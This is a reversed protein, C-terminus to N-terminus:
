QMIVSAIELHTQDSCYKDVLVYLSKKRRTHNQTLVVRRDRVDKEVEPEIAGTLHLWRARKRDEFIVMVCKPLLCGRTTDVFGSDSYSSQVRYARDNL